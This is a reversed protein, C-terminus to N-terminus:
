KKRLNMGTKEADGCAFLFLIMWCEEETLNSPDAKIKEDLM